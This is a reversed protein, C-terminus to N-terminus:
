EVICEVDAACGDHATMGVAPREAVMGAVEGVVLQTGQGASATHGMDGKIGPEQALLAFSGDQICQVVQLMGDAHHSYFVHSQAGVEIAVPSHTTKGVRRFEDVEGAM